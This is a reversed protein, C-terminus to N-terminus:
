EERKRKKKMAVAGVGAFGAMGGVLPLFTMFDTFGGTMPAEFTAHNSIEYTVDFLYYCQEEKDWESLKSRDINYKKIDEETIRMPLHIEIDEALLNKGNPAQIETVTYIDPYLKDWTVYGDSGSTKTSVLKGKSDVLKFKAGALPRGNEDVKRIKISTDHPKNHGTYENGGWLNIGGNTNKDVVTIYPETTSMSVSGDKNGWTGELTYGPAHQTEQIKYTGYPLVPKQSHPLRYFDNSKEKVLYKDQLMCIWKGGVQKVELVWTKKPTGSVDKNLNDYYWVTFQTGALSPVTPTEPGNWIKTIQIGLPDNGAPEVSRITAKPNAETITITKYKGNSMEPDLEFGKSPTIEQVYYTGFPLKDVKAHGNTDTTMRKFPEGSCSSNKWVGYVAGALSYCNNGDTMAPNDSKKELEGEGTKPPESSTKRNQIATQGGVVTYTYTNPDLDYGPSAKTEKVYYTGVGLETDGTAAYGKDDTTISTVPNGSCSANDWIGYVAGKLSYNSNGNTITTDKSQKQISLGGNPLDLKVTLGITQYGFYWGPHSPDPTPTYWGDRKFEITFMATGNGVSTCRATYNGSTGAVENAAGHWTCYFGDITMDQLIGSGFSVSWSAGSGNAGNPYNGRIITARGSYTQGVEPMGNLGATQIGEEDSMALLGDYINTGKEAVVNVKNLTPEMGKRIHNELCNDDCLVSELYLSESVIDFRPVDNESVSTEVYINMEQMADLVFYINRIGDVVDSEIEPVPTDLVKKGEKDTVSVTDLKTYMPALVEVQCGTMPVDETIVEDTASMKKVFSGDLNSFIIEAKGKVDITVPFVEGTDEIPKVDPKEGNGEVTDEESGGFGTEFIMGQNLVESVKDLGNKSIYGTFLATAESTSDGVVNYDVTAGFNSTELRSGDEKAAGIIYAFEVSGPVYDVVDVGDNGAAGIVTIGADVAKQIESKLVSTSLTTRAYLSLNIMDVNESIAYEMAAVLSSITGFGNSNMARISLIKADSNQSVIAQLMADGHETSEEPEEIVSVRDIVNASEGVGTDILAIVNGDQSVTIEESDSADSLINNLTDIPNETESVTLADKSVIIEETDEKEGAAEVPMDPEVSLSLNKFYTYANMTQQISTFQLLYIDEYESLVDAENPIVSKDETLLVLRMSAFDSANLSSTDVQNDGLYVSAFSDEVNEEEIVIEPETDSTTESEIAIEDDAKKETWTVNVAKGYADAMCPVVTVTQAMESSVHLETDLVTKAPMKVSIYCKTLTDEKWEEVLTAKSEVIKDGSKLDISVSDTEKFEEFMLSTAITKLAEAKITEVDEVGTWFSLQFEMEQDSTNEAKVYLPVVDGTVSTEQEIVIEDEDKVLSVSSSCIEKVDDIVINESGQGTESVNDQNEVVIEDTKNTDSIVIDNESKNEIVIDEGNKSETTVKVSDDTGTAFVNVVSGSLSSVTLLVALSLSTFCTIKNRKM